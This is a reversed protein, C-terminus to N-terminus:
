LCNTVNNQYVVCRVVATADCRVVVAPTSYSRFCDCTTLYLQLLWVVVVAPADCRVNTCLETM